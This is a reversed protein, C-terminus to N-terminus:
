RRRAGDLPWKENGGDLPRPLMASSPFPRTM